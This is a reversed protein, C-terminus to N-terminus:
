AEPLELRHVRFVGRKAQTNRHPGGFAIVITDRDAGNVCGCSDRCAEAPRGNHCERVGTPKGEPTDFNIRRDPVYVTGQIALEHYWAQSCGVPGLIVSRVGAKAWRLALELAAPMADFEPNGFTVDHWSVQEPAAATNYMECLHNNDDAFADVLFPGFLGGLHDFLWRPTRRTQLSPSKALGDTRREIGLHRDVVARALGPTPEEGGAAAVAAAFLQQQAEPPARDLERAVREPVATEVQTSVRAMAMLQYARSPSLDLTKCYSEWSSHTLKYLGADHIRLLAVAVEIAARLGRRVIRELQELDTSRRIAELEADLKGGPPTAAAGPPVLHLKRAM